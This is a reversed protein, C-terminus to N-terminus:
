LKTFYGGRDLSIQFVHRRETGTRSVKMARRAKIRIGRDTSSFVCNSIVV